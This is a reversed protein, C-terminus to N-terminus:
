EEDVRNQGCKLFVLSRFALAAKSYSGEKTFIMKQYSQEQEGSSLEFSKLEVIEAFHRDLQERKKITPLSEVLRPVARDADMFLPFRYKAADPVAVVLDLDLRALINFDQDVISNYPGLDYKSVAM